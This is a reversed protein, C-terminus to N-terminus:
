FSSNLKAGDTLARGAQGGQDAQEPPPSAAPPQPPPFPSEHGHGIMAGVIAGFVTGIIAGAGVATGRQLELRSEKSSGLLTADSILLGAGSGAAAGALAGILTGRPVAGMACGSIWTCAVVVGLWRTILTM